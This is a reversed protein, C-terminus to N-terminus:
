KLGHIMFTELNGPSWPGKEKRGIGLNLTNYLDPFFVTQTIEVKQFKPHKRTALFLYEFGIFM